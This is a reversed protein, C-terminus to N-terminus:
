LFFDCKEVFDISQELELVDQKETFGDVNIM